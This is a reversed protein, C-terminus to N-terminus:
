DLKGQAKRITERAMDTLGQRVATKVDEMSVEVEPEPPALDLVSDDVEAAPPTPTETEPSGSPTAPAQEAAVPESSLNKIHLDIMSRMSIADSSNHDESVAAMFAKAYPLMLGAVEGLITEAQAEDAVSWLENMMAYFIQELASSPLGIKVRDFVAKVNEVISAKAKEKFMSSCMAVAQDQPKGEKVMAPICRDMFDKEKEGKNPKVKVEDPTEAKFGFAFQINAKEFEADTKPLQDVSKIMTAEPNASCSVQSYELLDWKKVTRGGNARPAYDIVNFGISWFPMYGDKAKQYLRKGTDDPFYQTKAVIGRVGQSNTGITLSLPKAIPEMGAKPDLGHQEMVVPMGHLVMGEALMVDDTRDASETSIFHDLILREDNFAKVESRFVRKEQPM